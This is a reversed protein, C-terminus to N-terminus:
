LEGGDTRKIGLARIAGLSWNRLVAKSYRHGHCDILPRAASKPSSYPKPRETEKAKEDGGPNCGKAAVKRKPRAM